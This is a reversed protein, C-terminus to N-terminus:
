ATAGTMSLFLQELTASEYGASARLEDLTGEAILRGGCLIGIRQALREAVEMIHTSLIVTGGDAVHRLLLDKVLRAAAADLGTLPEDLVILEPKHILAGALSLKQRMGRSFGEVVEEAHAALGLMGLLQEARGRAEDAPVGWLGAVFELYEYPKLRDYLLPEDPLYAVRRKVEIAETRADRGLVAIDGYDPALLGVAMRLTTTKGAGNAGLLTYFEGRRVRLELGGIVPRDFRKHVNRMCLAWDGAGQDFREM